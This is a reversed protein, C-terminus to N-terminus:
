RLKPTRGRRNSAGLVVLRLTSQSESAKRTTVGSPNIVRRIWGSTPKLQDVPNTVALRAGNWQVLGAAGGPRAVSVEQGVLM